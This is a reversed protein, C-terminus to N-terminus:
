VQSGGVGCSLVQFRFVLPFTRNSGRALGETAAPKFRFLVGFASALHPAGAFHTKMLDDTFEREAFYHYPTRCQSAAALTNHYTIANTCM